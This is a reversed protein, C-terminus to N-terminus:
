QANAMIKNIARPYTGSYEIELMRAISFMGLRDWIVRRGYEGTAGAYRDIKNSWTYGGDDSWSLNIPDDNGLGVDTFVEIAWVKGKVGANSLPQTQIVCRMNIGYETGVQDNMEGIRGDVADGVFVRNYAQVISNVRWTSDIYDVGDPIRSRQEHWEPKGSRQSASLDYKFCYDGVNMVIFEAGNQSHRLMFARNIDDESMNQIIYDIPETSIKQPSGGSYMWIGPEANEGAGLWVYSQRFLTKTYKTRLGTDIVGNPIPDFLFQLGGVNTFPVTIKEGFVYLQNRYVGLGVVTNLQPVPYSDLADYAFGDNLASHFIINSGTKCFVFVSDLSVVDDVPGNFDPDTILTLTGSDSCIYAAEGPVVICLQNAISAMQVRSTGAINGLLTVGFSVSQDPNINRNLRYLFGGNVFYPRGNMVHSGRNIGAGGTAVQVLGPCHYLNYENLAGSDPYNVYWNILRQSAFQKSRTQYFGSNFPIPILGAKSTM